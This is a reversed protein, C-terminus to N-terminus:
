NARLIWSRGIGMSSGIEKEELDLPTNYINIKNAKIDIKFM